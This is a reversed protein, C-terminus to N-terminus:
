GDADAERLADVANAGVHIERRGVETETILVGAAFDPTGDAGYIGEPNEGIRMSERLTLMAERRETDEAALDLLEVPGERDALLELVREVREAAAGANYIYSRVRM